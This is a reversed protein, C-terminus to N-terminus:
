GWGGGELLHRLVAGIFVLGLCLCPTACGYLFAMRWGRGEGIRVTELAYTSVTTMGGFLGLIFFSGSFSLWPGDAEPFGLVLGAGLAGILNSSLTAFSPPVGYGMARLQGWVRIWSGIGCGIAVALGHLFFEQLSSM